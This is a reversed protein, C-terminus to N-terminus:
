PTLSGEIPEGGSRRAFCSYDNEGDQWAQETPAYSGELVIDDYAGAAELSVSAGCRVNVEGALADSGPYPDSEQGLETLSVLQAAHPQACDVVTYEEEWPGPFPDLCEGGGLEDWAYTGPAVPGVIPEETPEPTPTPTPTASTASPSPAPAAASWPSQVGLWFLGLLALLAVLGGAIWALMKVNRPMPERDAPRRERSRQPAEGVVSDDVERFRNAGFLDDLGTEEASPGVATPPVPMAQTAEGRADDDDRQPLTMAQTPEGWGDDLGADRDPLSMAQTPEGWGDDLEPRASAPTPQQPEAAPETPEAAPEPQAPTATPTSPPVAPTAGPVSSAGFAQPPLATPPLGFGTTPEPRPASEAAPEAARRRAPPPTTRSPAGPGGPVSRDATPPVAETAPVPPNPAPAVPPQSPVTPQQAIPAGAEVPSAASQASRARQEEAVDEQLAEFQLRVWEEPTLPAGGSDDRRDNM